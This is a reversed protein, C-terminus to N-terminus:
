VLTPLGRRLSFIDLYQNTPASALLRCIGFQTATFTSPTTATSTWGSDPDLSVAFTCSGGPVYRIRLWHPQERGPMTASTIPNLLTSSYAYAAVNWAYIGLPNNYGSIAIGNGSADLIALSLMGGGFPYGFTVDAPVVFSRNGLIIEQAQNVTPFMMRDGVANFNVRFGPPVYLQKPYTIDTAPVIGTPAGVFTAKNPVLFNGRSRELLPVKTRIDQVLAARPAGPVKRPYTPIPM